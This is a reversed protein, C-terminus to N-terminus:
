SASVTTWLTSTSRDVVGVGAGTSGCLAGAELSWSAASVGLSSYCDGVGVVAGFGSRRPPPSTSRHEGDREQRSWCPPIGNRRSVLAPEAKRELPQTEFDVWGGAGGGVQRGPCIQLLM